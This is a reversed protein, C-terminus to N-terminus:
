AARAQGLKLRERDREHQESKRRRSNKQRRVDDAFRMAPPARRRLKARARERARSRWARRSPLAANRSGSTGAFSQRSRRRLFGCRDKTGRGITPMRCLTAPQSARSRPSPLRSLKKSVARATAGSMISQRQLAAKAGQRPTRSKCEEDAKEVNGARTLRAASNSRRRPAAGRARSLNRSPGRPA